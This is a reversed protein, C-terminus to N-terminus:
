HCSRFRHRSDLCRFQDGISAGSAPDVAFRWWNGIYGPREVTVTIRDGESIIWNVNHWTKSFRHYRVSIPGPVRQCRPCAIRIRYDRISGKDFDHAPFGLKVNVVKRAEHGHFTVRKPQWFLDALPVEPPGASALPLASTLLVVVAVMAASGFHM